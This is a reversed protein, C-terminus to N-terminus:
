KKDPPPTESPTKAPEPAATESPQDTQTRSRKGAGHHEATGSASSTAKPAKGRGSMQQAIELHSRLTPLTKAAFERVHTDIAENSMKEFDKIAKRHHKTLWSAYARDFQNGSLRELKALDKQHKEDLADPLSLAKQQALSKLESNAKEHGERIKQADSKVEESSAKTSALEAAKVEIMGSQAANMVFRRDGPALMDESAEVRSRAGTQQSTSTQQERSTKQEQQDSTQQEKTEKEKRPSKDDPAAASVTLAVGAALFVHTFVFRIRMSNSLEQALAPLRAAM